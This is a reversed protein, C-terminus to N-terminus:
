AALARDVGERIFDAWPDSADLTQAAHGVIANPFGKVRSFHAPLSVKLEEALLHPLWKGKFIEFERQNAYRSQVIRGIKTALIAFDAAHLPCKAQLDKRYKNELKADVPGLAVPNIQSWVGFNCIGRVASRKALVCLEVWAGWNRMAQTLWADPDPLIANVQHPAVSCCASIATVLDCNRFVLGEVDYTPTYIVHPSRRRIGMVDDVDKDLIFLSSHKLGKFNPTLLKKRRLWDYADLLGSKGSQRGGPIEDSRVLRYGGRSACYHDLVMGYVFPDVAKGEM